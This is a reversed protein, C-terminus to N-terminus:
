SLYLYVFSTELKSYRDKPDAPVACHDLLFKVVESCGLICFNAVIILVDPSFVLNVPLEHVSAPKSWFIDECVSGQSESIQKLSM